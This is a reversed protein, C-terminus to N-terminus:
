AGWVSVDVGAGVLCVSFKDDVWIAVEVAAGEGGRGFFVDVAGEVGATGAEEGARGLVALDDCCQEVVAGVGFGARLEQLGFRNFFHEGVLYGLHGVKAALADDRGFGLEAVCKGLQIRLGVVLRLPPPQREELM